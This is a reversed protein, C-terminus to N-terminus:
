RFIRRLLGRRVPRTSRSGCAGASMAPQACGAAQNARVGGCGAAVGMSYAPAPQACAQTRLVPGARESHCVDSAPEAQTSSQHRSERKAERRELAEIRQEHDDLRENQQLDIESAVFTREAYLPATLTAALLATLYRM